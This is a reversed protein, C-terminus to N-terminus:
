MLAQWRHKHHEDEQTVVRSARLLHHIPRMTKLVNQLEEKHHWGTLEVRNQVRIRTRINLYLVIRRDRVQCLSLVSHAACIFNYAM